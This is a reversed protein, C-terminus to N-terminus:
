ARNDEPEFVNITLKVTDSVYVCGNQDVEISMNKCNPDFIDSAIIGVLNGAFDYAKARPGAKETVYVHTGVAINTPNCCGGFGAPNIADFRGIHGLLEGSPTYREVRHKGPNAVHIVGASDVDFDLVGNCVLFGNVPNNAGITNLLKGSRDLRRVARGYWDAVLVDPGSFGIATVFGLTKEDQWCDLPKGAPSFFEIQRPEGALVAGSPSIAISLAPRTTTWAHTPAGAPDFARIGYDGAAYLHGRADTALGRLADTFGSDITLIHRYQMM